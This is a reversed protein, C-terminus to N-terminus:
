KNAEDEKRKKKKLRRGYLVYWNCDVRGGSMGTGEGNGREGLDVAVKNRRPFSCAEKIEGRRSYKM